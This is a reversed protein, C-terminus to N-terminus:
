FNSNQSQSLDISMSGNGGFHRSETPGFFNLVELEFNMTTWLPGSASMTVSRTIKGYFENSILRMLRM